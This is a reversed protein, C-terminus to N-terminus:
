KGDLALFGAQRLFAQGEDGTVFDALPQAVPNLVAFRYECRPNYQEPLPLIRLDDSADLALAYHAYGIFLDTFNNRILWASAIEGEPLTLTDRGGVLKIAREKLGMQPYHQEIREFLQWTYDGSPDCGPTSTGLRLAPNALLELWNHQETEPTRRATLNLHNFAFTQASLAVGSDLLAQPHVTNASAFLDCKEGAEIKERLLGAPGFILKIGIGSRASFQECLPIFARKLSGAAFVSLETAM